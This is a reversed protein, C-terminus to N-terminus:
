AADGEIFRPRHAATLFVDLDESCAPCLDARVGDDADSFGHTAMKWNEEPVYANVQAQTPYRSGMLPNDTVNKRTGCHDCMVQRM